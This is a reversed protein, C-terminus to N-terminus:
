RGVPRKGLFVFHGVIDSQFALPVDMYGAYCDTIGCYLRVKLTDLLEVSSVYVFGDVNSARISISPGIKGNILAAYKYEPMFRNSLSRKLRTHVLGFLGLPTDIIQSSGRWKCLPPDQIQIEHHGRLKAIDSVQYIVAPEEVRATLLLAKGSVQPLWNKQNRSCIYEISGLTKMPEAYQCVAVCMRAKRHAYKIFVCAFHTDSVRLIRPDEYHGFGFTGTDLVPDSVRDSVTAPELRFRIFSSQVPTDEDFIFPLRTSPCYNRSSHRYAVIGGGSGSPNYNWFGNLPKELTPGRANVYAYVAL